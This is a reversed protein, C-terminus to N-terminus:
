TQLDSRWTTRGILSDAPPSSGGCRSGIRQWRNASKTTGRCSVPLVCLWASCSVDTLACGSPHRWRVFPMRQDCGALLMAVKIACRACCILLIDLSLSFFIYLYGVSEWETLVKRGNELHAISESATGRLLTPMDILQSVRDAIADAIRIMLPRM